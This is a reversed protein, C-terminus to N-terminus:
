SHYRVCQRYCFLTDDSRYFSSSPPCQSRWRITRTCDSYCSTWLSRSPKSCDAHFLCADSCTTRHRIFIRIARKSPSPQISPQGRRYLPLSDILATFTGNTSGLLVASLFSLEGKLGDLEGDMGRRLSGGALSRNYGALYVADGGFIGGSGAGTSYAIHEPMLRYSSALDSSSERQPIFRRLPSLSESIDSYAKKQPLRQCM